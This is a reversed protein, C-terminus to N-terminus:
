RSYARSERLLTSSESKSLIHNKATDRVGDLTKLSIILFELLMQMDKSDKIVLDIDRRKTKLTICQWCYFPLCRLDRPQMSNIHKRMIWFRSSFGGYVFSQIEDISCSASSYERKYTVREDWHCDGTSERVLVENKSHEDLDEYRCAKQM